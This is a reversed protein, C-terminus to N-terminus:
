RVVIVKCDAACGATGDCEEPATVMKDGCYPALTCDPNCGGYSGDNKTAGLDCVEPATVVGDGCAGVCSSKVGTFGGMTLQYNSETRYREAQFVVIEYVSGMKLGLDVDHGNGIAAATATCAPSPYANGPAVFDCVYGHGNSADLTVSGSAQQHTGGLDVALKKNIYVWVDDDGYFALNATGTYEFWTRAVSTFGYNHNQGPSNGWGMGDLPFFATSGFQFAGGAIPPLTLTSVITKNYTSNDVYWMGFWDTTM